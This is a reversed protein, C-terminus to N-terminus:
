KARQVVTYLAFLNKELDGMDKQWGLAAGLARIPADDNTDFALVTFGAKELADKDFPSRGDTSPREPNFAGAINYAIAIGGPALANHLARLFTEDNAGFDVFAKRGPLPRMFGRKLTNKAVILDFDGGIAKTLSADGAFLGDYLKLTGIRGSAGVFVGQDERQRYLAPMLSDVDLASVQAGAYAMLQMGGIAGYGIDLVRADKLSKLGFQGAVDLARVYAIPSGYYTAYYFAENHTAKTYASKEAEPLASWQAPAISLRKKADTYVERPTRTPLLSAASLFEKGPEQKVLPALTQAQAVLEAATAAVCANPLALLAIAWFCTITELARM